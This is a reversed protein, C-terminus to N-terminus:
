WGPALKMPRLQRVACRGISGACRRRWHRVTARSRRRCSKSRRATGAGGPADEEAAFAAHRAFDAPAAAGEACRSQTRRSARGAGDAQVRAEPCQLEEASQMLHLVPPIDQPLAAAWREAVLDAHDPANQGAWKLWRQFNETCPDAECARGFLADSSLFYCIWGAGVADARTDRCAPRRLLGWAGPIDRRVAAGCTRDTRGDIRRWLDAMHLYLTAVEPGKAPFWKEHVAHKRFEDWVSCALPIALPDHPTEEHGRALLRWFYANKLSPGGMAATVREVKAGALMARVSIHQKLRELQDPCVEKCLAVAKGIEQLVLGQNNKDLAQDLNALTARLEAFGGGAKKVLRGGGAHAEAEAGDAGAGGSGARAAAATPEVAALYKECLADENAYLAQIARLLMKWPALPSQRSIEPLVLSEAAVPGSTVAGLARVVAGAAVRLPHEPPLADCRAIQAPDGAASRIRAEIGARKEAPLSPDAVLELLGEIGGGRAKLTAAVERLRDRSSPHRGQVLELLARAEM